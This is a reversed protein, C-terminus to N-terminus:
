KLPSGGYTQEKLKKLVDGISDHKVNEGSVQYYADAEGLKIKTYAYKGSLFCFDISAPILGDVSSSLEFMGTVNVILHYEGEYNSISMRVKSLDPLAVPVIESNPVSIWDGQFYVILNNLRGRNVSASCQVRSIRSDGLLQISDASISVSDAQLLEEETATLLLTSLILVLFYDAIKM